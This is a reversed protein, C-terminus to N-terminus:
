SATGGSAGLAQLAIRTARLGDEATVSLPAEGRVAAIFHSLLAFQGKDEARGRTDKGPLGAFRVGRFDDIIVGGGGAYAEVREKGLGLHGLSTYVVTAHSGDRFRLSVALNDEPPAQVSDSQIGGATVGM